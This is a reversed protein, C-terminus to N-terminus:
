IICMVWPGNPRNLGCYFHATQGRYTKGFVSTLLHIETLPVMSALVVFDSLISYDLQKLVM